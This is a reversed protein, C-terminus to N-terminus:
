VKFNTTKIEDEFSEGFVGHYGHEALYERYKVDEDELDREKDPILVWSILDVACLYRKAAVHAGVLRTVKISFGFITLYKVGLAEHSIRGVSKSKNSATSTGPNISIHEPAIMDIIQGYNQGFV